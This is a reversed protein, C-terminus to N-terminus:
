VHKKKSVQGSIDLPPFAFVFVKKKMREYMLYKKKIKQNRYRKYKKQVWEKRQCIQNDNKGIESNKTLKRNYKIISFWCTRLSLLTYKKNKNNCFDITNNRNQRANEALWLVLSIDGLSEGPKPAPLYHPRGFM